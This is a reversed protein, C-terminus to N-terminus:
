EGEEMFKNRENIAYLINEVKLIWSLYIKNKSIRASKQSSFMILFIGM